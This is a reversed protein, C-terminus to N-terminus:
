SQAIFRGDCAFGLHSLQVLFCFTGGSKGPLDLAGYFEPSRAGPAGEDKAGLAMAKAYAADVGQTTKGNIAIMVGNGVSAAHGDGPTGVALMVGKGDGYAQAKGFDMMRKYGIEALVTDYFALAKPKDNTGLMAYALMNKVKQQHNLGSVQALCCGNYITKIAM